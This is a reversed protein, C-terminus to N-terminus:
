KKPTTKGFEHPPTTIEDAIQVSCCYGCKKNKSPTAQCQWEDYYTWVQTKTGLIMKNSSKPTMGTKKMSAHAKNWDPMEKHEKFYKISCLKCIPKNQRCAESNKKQFEQIFEREKLPKKTALNIANKDEQMLEGTHPIPTEDNM